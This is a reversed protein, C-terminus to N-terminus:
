SGQRPRRAPAKQGPKRGLGIKKALDRRAEAYAPAVMPYDPKLGYRERYQAPTLGHGSLHRKLLKYPKGDILSVLYDRKISSRVSVAPVHEPAAQSTGAGENGSAALENVTAHMSRLFTPVEESTPRVNPNGLWAITLETALEIANTDNIEDAMHRERNLNASHIQGAVPAYRCDPL